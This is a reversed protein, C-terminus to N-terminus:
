KQYSILIHLYQEIILYLSNQVNSIWSYTSVEESDVAIDDEIIHPMGHDQKKEYEEDFESKFRGVNGPHFKLLQLLTEPSLQQIIKLVTIFWFFISFIYIDLKTINM